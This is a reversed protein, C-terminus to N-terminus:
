LFVGFGARSTFGPLATMPVCNFVRIGFTLVVGHGPQLNGDLLDAGTGANKVCKRKECGNAPVHGPDENLQSGGYDAQRNQGSKRM